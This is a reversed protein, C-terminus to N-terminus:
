QECFDYLSSFDALIYLRNDITVLGQIISDTSKNWEVEATDFQVINQVDQVLVGFLQKNKLEVIIIKNEAQTNKNLLKGGSFISVINGRINLIGEIYPLAGPVPVPAKFSIIEKISEVKHVYTERDISFVLWQEIM